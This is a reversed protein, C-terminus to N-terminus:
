TEIQFERGIDLEINNFERFKSEYENYNKDKNIIKYEQASKDILLMTKIETRGYGEFRGIKHM